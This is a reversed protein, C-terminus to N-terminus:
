RARQVVQGAKAPVSEILPCIEGVSKARVTRRLVARLQDRLAELQRIRENVERLHSRALARVRECPKKGGRAIDLLEKAERLRVGLKQSHKLFRLLEIEERQYFRYGNSLRREARVLGRREYYRIASTRLKLRRAVEGISLWTGQGEVM